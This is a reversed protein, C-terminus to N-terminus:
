GSQLFWIGLGIIVPIAGGVIGWIGAKVKLASVDVRVQTLQESVVDLKASLIAHQRRDEAAHEQIMSLALEITPQM